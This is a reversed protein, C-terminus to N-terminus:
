NEVTSPFASPRLCMENGCTDFAKFVTLHNPNDGYQVCLSGVGVLQDSMIYNGTRCCTLNLITPTGVTTTVVVPVITSQSPINTLFDILYKYGTKANSFSYKTLLGFTSGVSYAIIQVM